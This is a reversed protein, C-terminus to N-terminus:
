GSFQTIKFPIIAFLALSVPLMVQFFLLPEPTTIVL